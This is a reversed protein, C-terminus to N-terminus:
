LYRARRWAARLRLPTDHGGSLKARVDLASDSADVQIRHLAFPDTDQTNVGPECSVAARFGAEAVLARERRGFLGAPYCFVDVRRGLHAELDAKGGEIEDRAREDDVRLLNPHTRTHAEFRLPSSLDLELVAEWPILPPQRAYWPFAANGSTVETSIFVSATFGHEALVPAANEAVDLYGDDFSLGVISPDAEGAGLRDALEAVHVGRYGARALLAMQEAFASNSVALVDRDDSVRHYFFIRSGATARGRTRALWAFSRARTV